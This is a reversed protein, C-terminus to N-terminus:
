SVLLPTKGHRFTRDTVSGLGNELCHRLIQVDGLGCAKMLPSDWPVQNQLRLYGGLLSIDSHPLDRLMWDLGFTVVKSIGLRPLKMSVHISWRKDSHYSTRTVVFVTGLIQSSTGAEFNSTKSVTASGRLQRCTSRTHNLRDTNVDKMSTAEVHKTCCVNEANEEAKLTRSVLTNRNVAISSNTCHDLFISGM